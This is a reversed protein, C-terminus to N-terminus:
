LLGRAIGTLGDIRSGDVLVVDHERGLSCAKLTFRGNTVAMLRPQKVSAYKSRARLVDSVADEDVLGDGLARHKCQCIIPRAGPHGSPPHVIIDAGGDHSKPTLDCRYGATRYQAAVWTEFEKWGM